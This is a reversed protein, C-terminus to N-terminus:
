GNARRIQVHGTRTLHFKKKSGKRNAGEDPPSSEFAKSQMRWCVDAYMLSLARIASTHQRRLLPHRVTRTVLYYTHLTLLFDKSFIAFDISLSCLIVSQQEHVSEGDVRCSANGTNRSSDSTGGTKCPLMRTYCTYTHIYSTTVSIDKRHIM